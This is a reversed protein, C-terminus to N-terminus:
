RKEAVYQVRDSLAGGALFTGFDYIKQNKFSPIKLLRFIEEVPYYYQSQQEEYREYLDDERRVFFSLDFDIKEEDPKLANEWVCYVNDFNYVFTNDGITEKYKEPTNMDFMLLGGPRLAEASCAIFSEIKELNELYNFSDCCTIVADFTEDIKFNSMDGKFFRVNDIGQEEAKEDAVTLMDESLDVATVDFGKKALRLTINGTGCGFELIKKIPTAANLTMRFIYDAWEDYDIEQMLEDYVKAFDEYM